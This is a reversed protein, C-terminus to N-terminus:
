HCFGNIMEVRGNRRESVPQDQKATLAALNPPTMEASPQQWTQAISMRTEMRHLNVANAETSVEGASRKESPCLTANHGGGPLPGIAHFRLRSHHIGGHVSLGSSPPAFGWVNAVHPTKEM